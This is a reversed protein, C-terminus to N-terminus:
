PPYSGGVAAVELADGSATPLMVSVADAECQQLAADAVTRLILAPDLSLAVAQSLEYIAVTERLQVNDRRLRGVDAARALTPLLASLRFPKLVYDFAGIKMADVATQITGQGTTVIGLLYPHIEQALRLLTIGDMGPMMLDTILLDVKQERLVVLAEEASACGLVDYGQEVLMECLVTM